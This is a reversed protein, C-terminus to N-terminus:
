QYSVPCLLVQYLTLSRCVPLPGLPSNLVQKNTQDMPLIGGSYKNGESPRKVVEQQFIM